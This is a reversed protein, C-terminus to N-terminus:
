AATGVTLGASIGPGSVEVRGDAFLGTTVAVTRVSGGDLLQLGYGGEALAVLASVPVILVDDRREAVLTVDVPASSYAGLRPQADPPLSVTVDVTVVPSQGQPAPQATAVAGIATITGPVTAGDPLKVTAQDGVTALSQRTVDLRVTVQRTQGTWELVPGTANDGLHAKVAGVRVAAPATVVRGLEVVGTEPLGLREQWDRVASATAATYTDDVTFGGYGLAALNSEFATVDAGKDGARLARFLPATAYMLLVPLGDVHYLPQGRQVTGGEAPLGTIMGPLRGAVTTAPGYDLTGDVDETQTLTGRTITTSAPPTRETAPAADRDLLLWGGGAALLVAPLAVAPWRRM